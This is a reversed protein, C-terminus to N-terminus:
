IIYDPLYYLEKAHDWDFELRPPLRASSRGPPLLLAVQGAALLDGGDVFDILDASLFHHQGEGIISVDVEEVAGVRFEEGLLAEGAAVGDVEVLERGEGGSVEVAFALPLLRVPALVVGTLRKGLHIFFVPTDALAVVLLAGLAGAGELFVELESTGEESSSFHV